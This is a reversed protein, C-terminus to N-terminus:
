MCPTIARQEPERAPPNQPNAEPVVKLVTNEITLAQTRSPCCLREDSMDLLQLRIDDAEMVNMIVVQVILQQETIQVLRFDLHNPCEMVTPRHSTM